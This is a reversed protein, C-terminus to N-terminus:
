NDHDSGRLLRIPERDEGFGATEVIGTPVIVYDGAIRNDVLVFLDLVSEGQIVSVIEGSQFGYRKAVKNNIRIVAQNEHQSWKQLASARRVLNDVQYIPWESLRVLSGEERSWQSELLSLSPYQKPMLEILTKLESTIQAVDVYDFGEFKFLNGLMRYIKWASKAEGLPRTVANAFQWHGSVNIFTGSMEYFPAIPLLVDAYQEATETIFPTMAVVFDARSLSAMAQAPKVCDLEPEINLLLYSRLGQSFMDLATLGPKKLVVGGAGRHPLMGAIWAGAANAGETLCGLPMNCEQAIKEALARILTAEPHNVAHNGLLVVGKHSSFACKSEYLKNALMAEKKAPKIVALYPAITSNNKICLHKLIGALIRPILHSASTLKASLTFNFDYDIPNISIINAGRLSAKRLRHCGLPQEYRINSGILLIVDLEEIEELSLGLQPYDPYCDQQSFDLQRIRHDLNSSGLNRMLKQLLFFEEVTSNPSALAGIQSPGEQELILRWKEVIFNLATVWDVDLWESERKIKPSLLRDTSRVAEYSFRDRDSLWLENIKENQRPVVRMVSRYDNYEHGRTHVFLNSGICDHASISPDQKLEWARAQFRFPKSTLAGVPCLDIINGSMESKMAHHIYTTIELNEGRRTAGLEPMGAVEVGFRVCRTCQICRTMETAILPGLNEDFVSRKGEYYRSIDKGYGLSLDQLECEGGQDCIPCDLPHNILLFEMVGRQAELAMPSRTFVKMGPTVPTACAPLPKKSKEVEVLCMRCNAAISLKEHYCFRPIYIKQRDAVQIIMTGEKAEIKKNDIEFEIM